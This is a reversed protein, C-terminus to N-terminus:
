QVPNWAIPGEPRVGDFRRLDSGDPAMTCLVGDRVFAIRSGDPSWAPWKNEGDDTIQRLGTGDANIVFIQANRDDDEAMWFAFRSGDPSWVLSQGGFTGPLTAVGERLGTGDPDVFSLFNEHGTDPISGEGFDLWAITSGDPSWATAEAAPEGCNERGGQGELNRGCPDALSRPTGGDVDVIYPGRRDGSSYAVESGDPSLAGWSTNTRLETRTGDGELVHLSEGIGETTQISVLLRMGDLSWGIPDGDGCRGGPGFPCVHLSGLPATRGPDAPDVARIESGSRYAIWGHVDVFAGEIPGAPQQGEGKSLGEFLDARASVVFLAIVAAVGVAATMRRILLKRRGGTLVENLDGAPVPVQGVRAQLRKGLQDHM